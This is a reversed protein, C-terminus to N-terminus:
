SRTLRSSPSSAHACRAERTLPLSALIDPPCSHGLRGIRLPDLLQAGLLPPAPLAPLADRGAGLEFPIRAHGLVGLAGDLQDVIFDQQALAKTFPRLGLFVQLAQRLQANLEA